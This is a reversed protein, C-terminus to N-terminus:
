EGKGGGGGGKGCRERRGFKRACIRARSFEGPAELLKKKKGGKGGGEEGGGGCATLSRDQQATPQGFPGAPKGGGKERDGKEKDFAQLNNLTSSLVGNGKKERRRKLV